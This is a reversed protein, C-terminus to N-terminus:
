EKISIDGYRVRLCEQVRLGTHVAFIMFDHLQERKWRKNKDAASKIRENSTKLLLKWEDHEFWPRPNTKEKRLQPFPPLTKIWDQLISDKLVM